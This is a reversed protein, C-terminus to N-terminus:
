APSHGVDDSAGPGDDPAGLEPAGEGRPSSGSRGGTAPSTQVTPVHVPEVGHGDSQGLFHVESQVDRIRADPHHELGLLAEEDLRENAILLADLKTQMARSERNQTSQIIFVMVFTLVTTTSTILRESGSHYVLDLLWLIVVFVALGIASLSGFIRTVGSVARNAGHHIRRRDLGAM